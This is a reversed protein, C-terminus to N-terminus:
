RVRELWGSGGAAIERYIQESRRSCRRLLRKEWILLREADFRRLAAGLGPLSLASLTRPAHLRHVAAIEGGGHHYVVDGYIAFMLPDYRQSNTRLLEQWPTGSLEIRRLLNAGMGTAHRGDPTTFAYGDSWDGALRRWAGVTTVCFCPDPQPDGANEARRVAVLEARELGALILPMPDAIPFADPDLFM